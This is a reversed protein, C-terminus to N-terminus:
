VKKEGPNSSEKVHERAHEECVGQSTNKTCIDSRNGESKVFVIKAVGDEIRERVCHCRVDVHKMRGTTTANNALCIAGVDGVHVIAPLKVKQGLFELVQKICMIEARAESIARHEAETSSSSVSRQARSKWAIPAGLLCIIFGTVSLRTDRDGSCDSDRHAILQQATLRLAIQGDTEGWSIRGNRQEM